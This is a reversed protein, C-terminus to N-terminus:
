RLTLPLESEDAGLGDREAVNEEHKVDHTVISKEKEFDM